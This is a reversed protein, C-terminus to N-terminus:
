GDVRKKRQVGGKSKRNGNKVTEKGAPGEALIRVYGAHILDDWIPSPSVERTDGMAMTEIGSFSQIAKVKM